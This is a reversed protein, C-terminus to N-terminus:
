KEISKCHAYLKAGFSKWTNLRVFEDRREQTISYDEKLISLLEQYDDYVYCLQMDSLDKFAGVNPGIPVGGMVITDILAGSSSVSMGVYPFLVYRSRQILFYLENFDVKRNEYSICDTCLARITNELQRDNCKGIIRVIMKSARILDNSIFEVIGKYPLVSGWILVDCCRADDTLEETVCIPTAPHCEYVVKCRAKEKAYQMAWKSHCVILDAHGFLYNMIRESQCSVGSHPHINHFMWIIRKRRRKIIWFSLLVIIYQIIGLRRESITEVWNFVFIDARISHILLCCSQGLWVGMTDLIEYYEGIAKKYNTCYPIESNKNKAIPYYYLREM